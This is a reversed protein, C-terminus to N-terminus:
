QSELQILCMRANIPITRSTVAHATLVIQDTINMHFFKMYFTTYKCCLIKIKRAGVKSTMTM